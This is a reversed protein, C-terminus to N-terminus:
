FQDARITSTRLNGDRQLYLEVTYGSYQNGEEVFDFRSDARGFATEPGFLYDPGYWTTGAAYKVEYSGLPLLIEASSGEHVVMTAVPVGTAWDAVKVFYHGGGARTRVEFPALGRRGSLNQNWGNPPLPVEPETFAPATPLAAAPPPSAYTPAPPQYAPRPSWVPADANIAASVAFVAVGLGLASGAAWRQAKSSLVGAGRSVAGAFDDNDLVYEWREARAAARLRADLDKLRGLFREALDKSGVHVVHSGKPFDLRIETQQYAGNRYKHTAGVNSLRWLPWWRVHDLSTEILYMPTLWLAGKLESHRWAWIWWGCYALAATLVLTVVGFFYLDGRVWRREPSLGFLLTLYWAVATALGLLRWGLGGRPIRFGDNRQGRERASLRERALEPLDHLDASGPEDGPPSANSRPKPPDPRSPASGSQPPASPRPPASPKSPPPGQPSRQGMRDADYKARKAPDGLVGYAANVLRLMENAQAWEAPQRERDFRDPHLVRSTRIYAPRIESQAVGPPIGLLTYLDPGDM